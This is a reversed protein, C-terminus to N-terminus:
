RLLVEPYVVNKVRQDEEQKLLVSLKSVDTVRSLTVYLQGHSFCKSSLDVGVRDLSQGQPKNITIAFYLRIPFQHRSLIFPQEGETSNITIRFIIRVEGHFEGGLIM